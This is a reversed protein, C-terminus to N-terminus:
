NYKELDLLYELIQEQTQEEGNFKFSYGKNLHHRIVSPKTTYDIEIQGTNPGINTSIYEKVEEEEKVQEQEQEQEQEQLSPPESGGETPPQIGGQSGGETPPKTQSKTKHFYGDLQAKIMHHHSMYALVVMPSTNTFDPEINNFQKELLMNMFSVKDENSLLKYSTYYSRYFNFAKREKM